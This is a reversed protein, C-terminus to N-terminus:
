IRFKESRGEWRGEFRGEVEKKGKKGEGKGGRSRRKREEGGRAAACAWM